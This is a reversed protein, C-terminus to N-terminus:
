SPASFNQRPSELEQVLPEFARVGDGDEAIHKKWRLHMLVCGFVTALATGAYAGWITGGVWAFRLLTAFSSPTQRYFIRVFFDTAAAALSMGLIGGIVWCALVIGVATFLIASSFRLRARLGTSAASSLAFVFGFFLGLAGGELMGQGVALMRVNPAYPGFLVVRFYDESVTGNVFNTAAGIAIGLLLGILILLLQPVIRIQNRTSQM